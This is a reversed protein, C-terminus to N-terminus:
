LRQTKITKQEADVAPRCRQCSTMRQNGYDKGLHFSLIQTRNTSGCVSCVVPDNQWNIKNNLLMERIPLPPPEVARSLEGFDEIEIQITYRIKM